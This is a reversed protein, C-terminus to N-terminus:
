FQETELEPQPQEYPLASGQEAFLRRVNYVVLDDFDKIVHDATKMDYAPHAGILAIVKATIDHGAAIDAPKDTFVICKEPPRQCKLAATLFLQQSNQIDDFMMNSEEGDDNAIINNPSFVSQLGVSQLIQIVDRKPRTYACLICKVGYQLLSHLFQDIGSRLKWEFSQELIAHLEHKRYMIRKIEGWDLLRPESRRTSSSSSISMTDDNDNDTTITSSSSNDDSHTNEDRWYFVRTIAAEPAMVEARIIDDMDPVAYGREKALLEWTRQELERGNTMVVDWTFIAGFAEEPALTHRHRQMHDYGLRDNLQDAGVIPSLPPRSSGGNNNYRLGPDIDTYRFPSDNDTNATTNSPLDFSDWQQQSSYLKDGKDGKNENENYDNFPSSSSSSQKHRQQKEDLPFSSSSSSSSSSTSSSTGSNGDPPLFVCRTPQRVQRCAAVSTPTFTSTSTTTINTTTTTTTPSIRWNTNHVHQHRHHHSFHRPRRLPSTLPSRNVVPVPPRNTVPTDSIFLIVSTHSSHKRPRRRRRLLTTTTTCDSSNM